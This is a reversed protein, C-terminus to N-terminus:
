ATGEAPANHVEQETTADQTVPHKRAGSLEVLVFDIASNQTARLTALRLYRKQPRVIEVVKIENDDNDAVTISSGTLDSFDDPSGGSDNSQQAKVSTAAGATIAGFGIIFRVCDYEACDVADSNVNTVGAAVVFGSGDPKIRLTKRSTSENM